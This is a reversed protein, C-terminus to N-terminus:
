GGLLYGAQGQAQWRGPPYGPQGQAPLRGPPYGPQYMTPSGHEGISPPLPTSGIGGQLSPGGSLQGGGFPGSPAAMAPASSSALLMRFVEMVPLTAGERFQLDAVRLTKGEYLCVQDTATINEIFEKPIAMAFSSLCGNGPTWPVIKVQESNGPVVDVIARVLVKSQDALFEDVNMKTSPQVPQSQTKETNPEIKPM